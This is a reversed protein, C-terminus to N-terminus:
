LGRLDEAGPVDAQVFARDRADALEDLAKVRTSLEVRGLEADDLVGM